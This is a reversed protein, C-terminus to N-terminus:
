SIKFQGVLDSLEVSIKSLDKTAFTVEEAGALVTNGVDTINVVNRNIEESVLSQEETAAAIQISMDSIQVVSNMAQNLSENVSRGEEVMEAVQQSSKQMVEVATSTGHQIKGITENIESTSLQTRTALTRVEDAVVAFGRGQEGARAAEIAANLALLNTQEAISKIVELVTNISEGDQRLGLITTEADKIQSSLEEVKNVLLVLMEKANESEKQAQKAADASNNINVSIESSSTSMQNMASALQEIEAQQSSSNDLSVAATSSLEESTSAVVSSQTSILNLTNVLADRMTGIGKKLDTIEDKGSYIIKTTLDGGGVQKVIEVLEKLRVNISQSIIWSSVGGFLSAIIVLVTLNVIVAEEHHEARLAAQETFSAIQHSLESLQTSLHEAEGEAEQGIKEGQEIDGLSIAAIAENSHEVYVLYKENISKLMSTVNAFEKAEEETLAHGVAEQSAKAVQILEVSIKQYLEEFKLKANNLKENMKSSSISSSGYHFIKEFEVLQELHHETILALSNSLPLDVEAIAVIDKGISKVQLISITMSAFMLILPIASGLLIKKRLSINNLWDM